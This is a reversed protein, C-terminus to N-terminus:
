RKKGVKLKFREGFFRVGKAKYIDPPRLRRLSLVFNRIHFYNPGWLWLTKRKYTRKRLTPPVSLVSYHSRGVDVFMVRGFATASVWCKYSFGALEIRYHYSRPSLYPRRLLSFPKSFLGLFSFSVLYRSSGQFFLFPFPVTIAFLSRGKFPLSLVPCGENSFLLRVGPRLHYDPKFLLPNKDIAIFSPELPNFLM